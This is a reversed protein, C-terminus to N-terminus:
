GVANSHEARAATSAMVVLLHVLTQRESSPCLLAAEAEGRRRSPTRQRCAQRTGIWSLMGERLLVSLGLEHALATGPALMYERLREYAEVTATAASPELSSAHPSM